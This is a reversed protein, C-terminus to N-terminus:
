SVTVTGDMGPHFTCHYQYTGPQTFKVQYTDGGNMTDSTISSYADFTVNHAVTGTNDWEVVDGAKVSVSAPNCKLEDSEKVTGAATQGTVVQGPGQAVAPTGSASASASASPAATPVAPLQAGSVAKALAALLATRSSADVDSRALTIAVTADGKQITIIGATDGEQVEAPGLKTPSQLYGALSAQTTKPFVTVIIQAGNAANYMCQGATKTGAGASVGNVSYIPSPSSGLAAQVDSSSLLACADPSIAPTPAVSTSGTIDAGGCAAVVLALVLPAPAAARLRRPPVRM